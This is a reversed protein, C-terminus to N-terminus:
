SSSSCGKAGSGSSSGAFPASGRRQHSPRMGSQHRFGGRTSCAVRCDTHTAADPVKRVAGFIDEAIYAHTKEGHTSPNQHEQTPKRRQFSPQIGHVKVLPERSVDLTKGGGARRKM